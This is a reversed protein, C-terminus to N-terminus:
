SIDNRGLLDDLQPKIGQHRALIATRFYKRISGGAAKELEPRSIDKRRADSIVDFVLADLASLSAGDRDVAKFRWWQLLEHATM